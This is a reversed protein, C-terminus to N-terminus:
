VFVKCVSERTQCDKSAEEFTEYRKAKTIPVLQRVREKDFAVYTGKWGDYGLPFSAIVFKCQPGGIKEGEKKEAEYSQTKEYCQEAAEFALQSCFNWHHKSSPEAAKTELIAFTNGVAEFFQQSSTTIILGELCDKEAMVVLETLSQQMREMARVCVNIQELTMGIQTTLNSM